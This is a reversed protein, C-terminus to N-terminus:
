VDISNNLNEDFPSSFVFRRIGSSSADFVRAFLAAYYVFTQLM